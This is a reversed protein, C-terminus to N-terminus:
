QEGREVSKLAADLERVAAEADSAIALFASQAAVLGAALESLDRTELLSQVFLRARNLKRDIESIRARLPPVLHVVIPYAM